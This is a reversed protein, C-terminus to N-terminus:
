EFGVLKREGWVKWDSGILKRGGCNGCKRRKGFSQFIKMM